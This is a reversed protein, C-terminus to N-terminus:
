WGLGHPASAATVIHEFGKTADFPMKPLLAPAITFSMETTLLTHGDAAARAVTGWGITGSGGARNDVV